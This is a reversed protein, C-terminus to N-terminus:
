WAVQIFFSYLAAGAQQRPVHAVLDSDEASYNFNLQVVFPIHKNAYLINVIAFTYTQM